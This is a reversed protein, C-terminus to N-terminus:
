WDEGKLLKGAATRLEPSANLHMSDRVYEIFEVANKWDEELAAIKVHEKAEYKYPQGYDLRADAIASRDGLQRADVQIDIAKVLADAARLKMDRETDGMEHGKEFAKQMRESFLQSIKEALEWSDELPASINLSKNGIIWECVEKTSGWNVQAEEVSAPEKLASLRLM